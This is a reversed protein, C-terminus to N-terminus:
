FSIYNTNTSCIFVSDAHQSHKEQFYSMILSFILSTKKPAQTAILSTLDYYVVTFHNEKDSSLFNFPVSATLCMKYGYTLLNRSLIGCVTVANEQGINFVCSSFLLASQLSM